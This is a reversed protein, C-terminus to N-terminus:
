RSIIALSCSTVIFTQWVRFYDALVADFLSQRGPPKKKFYAVFIQVLPLSVIMLITFLLIWYANEMTMKTIALDLLM